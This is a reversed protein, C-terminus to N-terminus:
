ANTKILDKFREIIVRGFNKEPEDRNYEAIVGQDERTGDKRIVVAEVTIQKIEANAEM